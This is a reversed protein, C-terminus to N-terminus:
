RSSFTFDTDSSKLPSLQYNQDFIVAAGDKDVRIVVGTAAVWAREGQWEKLSERTLIFRLRGLEELSVFFELRVRSAMPLPRSTAIFAGGASIDATVLEFMPTSGTRSEVTIRTRLSLSYRQQERRNGRGEREERDM